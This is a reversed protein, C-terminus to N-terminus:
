GPHLSVQHPEFLQLSVMYLPVKRPVPTGWRGVLFGLASRNKRAVNALSQPWFDFVQTNGYHYVPIIGGDLGQEVAVKVFGKRTLLMIREKRKHQM